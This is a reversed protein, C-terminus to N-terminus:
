HLCAVANGPSLAKPTYEQTRCHALLASAGHRIVALNRRLVSRLLEQDPAEDPAALFCEVTATVAYSGDDVSSKQVVLKVAKMKGNVANLASLLQATDLGLSTCSAFNPLVLMFFEPDDDFKKIYLSGLEPHKFIVDGDSDITVILGLETQVLESYVDTLM